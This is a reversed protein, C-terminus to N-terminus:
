IPTGGGTSLLRNILWDAGLVLLYILITFAVVGVAAVLAPFVHSESDRNM